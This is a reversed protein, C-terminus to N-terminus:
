KAPHCRVILYLRRPWGLKTLISDQIKIEFYDWIDNFPFAKTTVHMDILAKMAMHTPTIKSFKNLPLNLVIRVVVVFDPVVSRHKIEEIAKAVEVSGIENTVINTIHKIAREIPQASVILHNDDFTECVDYDYANYSLYYEIMESLLVIAAVAKSEAKVIIDNYAAYKSQHDDQVNFFLNVNGVRTDVM